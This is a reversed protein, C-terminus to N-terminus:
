ITKLHLVGPRPVEGLVEAEADVLQPARGELGFGGKAAESHAAPLRTFVGVVLLLESMKNWGSDLIAKSKCIKSRRPLPRRHSIIFSCSTGQSAESFRSFNM